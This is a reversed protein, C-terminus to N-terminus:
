VGDDASLDPEDDGKKASKQLERIKENIEAIEAYLARINEIAKTVVLDGPASAERADQVLDYFREGIDLFNREIKRKASMEDVKLKGIKTYLEIKEVSMVAGDKLGKKIKEWVGDMDM